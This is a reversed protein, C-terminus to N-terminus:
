HNITVYDTPAELKGCAKVSDLMCDYSNYEGLLLMKYTKNDDLPKGNYTIGELKYTGDGNDRITYEMGSTVPVNNYHRIPNSGYETESEYESRGWLYMTIQIKDQREEAKEKGCATIGLLM